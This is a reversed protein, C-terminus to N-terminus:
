GNVHARGRFSISTAAIALPLVIAVAIVGWALSEGRMTWVSVGLAAVSYGALLWRRAASLSPPRLRRALREDFAWSLTPSADSEMAQRLLRDMAEQESM